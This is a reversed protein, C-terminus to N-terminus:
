MKGETWTSVTSSLFQIKLELQDRFKTSLALNSVDTVDASPGVFGVSVNIGYDRVANKMFEEDFLCLIIEVYSIEQKFNKKLDKTL